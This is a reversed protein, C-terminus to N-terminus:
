HQTLFENTTMIAWCLDELAQERNKQGALYKEAVATEEPRPLRCYATLFLEEVIEADSKKGKLAKRFRNDPKKLRDHIAKGNYLALAEGLNGQVPRDCSCTSNRQPQGFAQLFENKDAPVPLQTARVPEPVGTLHGIADLLQETTLRRSRYHDFFAGEESPGSPTLGTRVVRIFNRLEEATPQPKKKPPMTGNMTQDLVHQWVKRDGDNQFTGDLVDLRVDGKTDTAGHCSVCHKALFPKIVKEVTERQTSSKEQPPATSRTSVQYTNSLLITRLLHRRDFKHEVFDRALAALLPPNSPPNTTRMDDFPEVIGRGMLFAWARNAEAAAFYENEKATLWRVLHVRPDEDPKLQLNGVGPLWPPALKETGPLKVPMAAGLDVMTANKGKDKQETITMRSFFNRMGHYDLQTWKENPHNHCKACGVRAGLFIVSATEMTEAHDAGMRFFNARPEKATDGSALLLESAFQDYPMNKAWADQLWKAYALAPVIGLTNPTVQLLDGWHQAWFLAHEPRALLDDILKARKDPSKDALFKRVVEAEPLIGVVDLHVRRLFVEDSCLKGPLIQLDKLQTYVQEDIFNAPKPADWAFDKAHNHVTLYITTLQQQFRINIAVLGRAWPTVEGEATVAAVTTNSSAFVALHSVDRKSGDAFTASVALKLPPDSVALKLSPAVASNASALRVEISTSKPAAVDDVRGEEIWKRLTAYGASEKPLRLGGKHEIARSPKALVFIKDTEDGKTLRGGEKNTLTAHDSEPDLGWLSLQLAGQGRPSGHCGASSCGQRALLPLVENRFSVKPEAAGAVPVIGLVLLSFFVRIM